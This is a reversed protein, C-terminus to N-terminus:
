SVPFYVSFVAGQGPQGSATIFGNHIHIIKKCIALGIGAGKYQHKGHLRYFIDFLKAAYVQDFGIGNDSVNIKWYKGTDSNLGKEATVVTEASIDLKFPVELRRYKIANSVLNTFLQLLLTYQGNVVPLPAISVTGNIEAINERQNEVAESLLSNLEVPLHPRNVTGTSAYNLLDEILKQMGSAAFEIREFYKKADVSLAEGESQQILQSFSKIKRLPEQLDHSAIYSFSAIEANTKELEKNKAMETKVRLQMEKRLRFYLLSVVLVTVLSFVLSYFPTFFAAEKREKIKESLERQQVSFMTEVQARILEMRAKGEQLRPKLSDYNYNKEKFLYLNTNLMEFRADILGSLHGAMQRLTDKGTYYAAFSLLDQKARAESSKVPALFSTDRTLLFGRQCTEANVTNVLISNLISQRENSETLWESTSKLRIIRQFAVVSLIILILLLSLHFIDNVAITKAKM